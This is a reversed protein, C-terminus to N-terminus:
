AIRCQLARVLFFCFHYIPKLGFALFFILTNHFAILIPFSSNWYSSACFVISCSFSVAVSASDDRLEVKFLLPTLIRSRHAVQFSLNGSQLIPECCVDASALTSGYDCFFFSFLVALIVLVRGRIGMISTAVLTFFSICFSRLFICGVVIVCRFLFPFVNGEFRIIGFM